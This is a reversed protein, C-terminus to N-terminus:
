NDVISGEHENVTALETHMTGVDKCLCINIYLVYQKDIPVSM